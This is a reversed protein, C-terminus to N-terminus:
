QLRNRRKILMLGSLDVLVAITWSLAEALPFVDAGFHSAGAYAFLVRGALGAIAAASTLTTHKSGNLYGNLVFQLGFIWYFPLCLIIYRFGTEATEKGLGFLGFLHLGFMWLILSAVVTVSVSFILGYKITDRVRKSNGSGINQGTFVSVAIGISMLPILLISDIKFAVAVGIVVSGGLINTINQLLVKGGSSAVSQIIQPTGLRICERLNENGTGTEEPSLKNRKDEIKKFLYAASMAEASVTAVAAGTIGLDFLVVFILDMLINVVSSVAIGGLPRKSDGMGRLIGAQLGYLAMFPVGIFTVRLYTLAGSMLDDPTHMLSLLKPAAAFAALAIGVSILTILKRIDSILRSIDGYKGAGYLHSVTISCGGSIGLQILTCMDIVPGVSSVSGLAEQSIANGLILGDAIAYSQQLLSAGMLPLIFMIFAYLLNGETVSKDKKVGTKSKKDAM